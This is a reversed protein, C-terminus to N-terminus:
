RNCTSSHSIRYTGTMWLLIALVVPYAMITMPSRYFIFSISGDAFFLLQICYFYTLIKPVTIAKPILDILIFVLIFISGMIIFGIVGAFLYADTLGTIGSNHAADRSFQDIHYTHVNAGGGYEDYLMKNLNSKYPAFKQVLYADPFVRYYLTNIQEHISPRTHQGVYGQRFHDGVVFGLILTALLSGFILTSSKLTIKQTLFVLITFPILCKLILGRSGTAYVEFLIWLSIILLYSLKLRTGENKLSVWIVVFSAPFIVTRLINLTPELKFPLDPAPVGMPSVGLHYSLLSIMWISLLYISFILTIPLKPKSDPAISSAQKSIAPAFRIVLASLICLLGGLNLALVYYQDLIRPSKLLTNIVPSYILAFHIYFLFFVLGFNQQLSVKKALVFYSPILACATLWTYFSLGEDLMFGNLM